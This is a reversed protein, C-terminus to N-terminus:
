EQMLKILQNLLIKTEATTEGLLGAIEQSVTMQKKIVERARDITQTKVHLLEEQQNMEKTIDAFIGAVMNELPFIIQRTITRNKLICFDTVVAKKEELVLQFERPDILLDLRQGIIQRSQPDFMKLAAPNIETVVLNEDAIIVANPMANLVQNSISEARKRMYPICMQPEAHGRFVAVAKERCSGFGCAGCNLEDQPSYKGSQNLINKIQEENPVPLKVERNEFTRVLDTSPLSPAPRTEPYKNTKLQSHSYFYLLKQKKSYIDDRTVGQPGGLCGGDCALMEMFNPIQNKDLQCFNNLLDMCNQLGTVTQVEKDMIDTSLSTALLQGGEAPFMNAKGPIYGDFEASELNNLDTGEEEFWNWVENFGLTYDVAGKVKDSVIEGKKAICPGIFVVVCGPYQKKLLKGHAILPSVLPSLNPILHPYHQEILNVVAPCASSIVPVPINLRHHENAILEAGVATLGVHSFGMGKLLGPLALPNPLPLHVPYSPAVSAVVTLSKNSLLDKIEDLDNKVVKAKQPCTITCYGCKVCIEEIVKAHTQINCPGSDICIAKLPCSRVCKYCDRCKADNTKILPM